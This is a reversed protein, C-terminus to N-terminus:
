GPCKGCTCSLNFPQCACTYGGPFCPACFSKCIAPANNCATCGDVDGPDPNQQQPLTPGAMSQIADALSIATVDGHAAVLERGLARLQEEPFTWRVLGDAALPLLVVHDTADLKFRDTAHVAYTSRGPKLAIPVEFSFYGRPNGAATFVTAQIAIRTLASGGTNKVIFEVGTLSDM